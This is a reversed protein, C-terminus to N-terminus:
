CIIGKSTIFDNLLNFNLPELFRTKYDQFFKVMAYSLKVNEDILEDEYNKTKLEELINRLRKVPLKEYAKVGFRFKGKINDSPDGVLCKYVTILEPEPHVFKTAVLQSDVQTTANILIKTGKSLLVWLDKDNSIVTDNKSAKCGIFDDAEGETVEIVKINPFHRAITIANNYLEWYIPDDDQKRGKKYDPNISKRYLRSTATDCVVFVEQTEYRRLLMMWLSYPDGGGHYIRKLYNNTDIFIKNVM